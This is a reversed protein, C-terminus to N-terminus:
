LLSMLVSAIAVSGALDAGEFAHSRVLNRVTQADGLLNRDGNTQCGQSRVRGLVAVPLARTLAFSLLASLTVLPDNLLMCAALVLWFSMTGVRTRWGLGLNFGFLWAFRRAGYAQWARPIVWRGSLVRLRLGVLHLAPVALALLMVLGLIVERILSWGGLWLGFVSVM